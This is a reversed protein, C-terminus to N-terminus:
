VDCLKRKKPSSVEDAEALVDIAETVRLVTGSGVEIVRSARPPRAAAPIIRLRRDAL